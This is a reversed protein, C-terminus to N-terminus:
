QCLGGSKYTGLAASCAFDGGLKVQTYQSLCTTKDDADLSNCCTELDDCAGGSGGGVSVCPLKCTGSSIASVACSAIPGTICEKCAGTFHQNSCAQLCTQDCSECKSSCDMLEKCAGGFTGSAYNEGFCQKYEADCTDVICTSYADIAAQDDCTGSGTQCSQGNSPPLVVPANATGGSGGGGDSGDGKCATAGQVAMMGFIM